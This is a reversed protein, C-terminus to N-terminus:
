SQWSWKSFYRNVSFHVQYKVSDKQLEHISGYRNEESYTYNESEVTKIFLEFANDPKALVVRPESQIRVYEADTLMIKALGAGASVFNPTDLKVFSIFSATLTFTVTLVAALAFARMRKIKKAYQATGTGVEISKKVPDDNEGACDAYVARCDPCEELHERM